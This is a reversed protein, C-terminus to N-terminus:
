ALSPGNSYYIHTKVKGMKSMSIWDLKTYVDQSYCEFGHALVLQSRYKNLKKIKLKKM